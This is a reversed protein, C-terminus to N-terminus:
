RGVARLRTRVLGVSIAASTTFSPSASAIIPPAKPWNRGWKLWTRSMMPVRSPTFFMAPRPRSTRGVRESNM